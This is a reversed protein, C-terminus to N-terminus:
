KILIIKLMSNFNEEELKRQIIEEIERRLQEFYRTM